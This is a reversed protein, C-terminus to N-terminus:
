GGSPFHKSQKKNYWTALSMKDYIDPQNPDIRLSEKYDAIAQTFKAQSADINGRENYAPVNEPDIDIAKSYDALAQTYNKQLLFAHGRDFYLMAYYPNIKIAKNYEAIAQTLNGQLAYIIGLYDYPYVFEPSIAIAKNYDSMAQTFNGQNFYALGRNIYPRAKHPSKQIVDEWLVFENKWIKNRQFTLVSYFAIIVTLLVMTMRLSVFSRLYYFSSALFMCFGVLPLYLRHEFIVDTQPVISSEPLLTLFFWFISFSLLRYKSFLCKAFYLIATVLLFGTLVPIEFFNKYVPYDYDLNLHLPLFALRIYTVMVRFQTLLYDVPSIGGPGGTISQIEELRVTKTLSMTLPIIFLIMWFPYLQIWNIGKKPKFFSFEYLLVILPLTIANEKTFMAAVATILSAIYYFKSLTDNRPAAPSAAIKKLSQKAESAIVGNQLLRSQAYFSLSALYFLATMSAARQWIYTVAETQIPHSVFILGALLAITNAHRTIKEEKMAPTAFTLLTLWCVLLAAGLHVALNFLHYGFVHLQNFHYNIALSLFTIFRCPCVNWIDLLNQINRIALNYVIYTDDDFHFSCFFSNSYVIAGLGIIALISFIKRKM